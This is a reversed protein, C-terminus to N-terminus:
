IYKEKWANVIEKQFKVFAEQKSAGYEKMYCEVM